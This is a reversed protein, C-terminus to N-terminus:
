ITYLQSLTIVIASALLTGTQKSEGTDRHTKEMRGAVTQLCSHQFESNVTATFTHTLYLKARSTPRAISQHGAWDGWQEHGIDAPILELMGTGQASLPYTTYISPHGTQTM